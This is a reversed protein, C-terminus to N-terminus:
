KQIVSRHIWGQPDRSEIAIERDNERRILSIRRDIAVRTESGREADRLFKGVETTQVVASPEKQKLRVAEVASAKLLKPWMAAFLEPSSYIDASNIEGNVAFVLGVADSRGDPIRQLAKLYGKVADEVPRSKLTLPLSSASASVTVTEATALALSRQTETVQQWVQSQDKKVGVAVKMPKAAALESSSNFTSASESGRQSWRGQEVCFADVAIRGSRRPLVFDNTIVRDQQGGKVIDGSQIYIKEDSVNEVALENVKKTESVVVKRQDMADKLTLYRRSGGKEGKQATVLFLSLNEHTFPGSIQDDSPIQGPLSLSWALSVALYTIKM